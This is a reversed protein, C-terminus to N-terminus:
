LQSTNPPCLQWGDYAICVRGRMWCTEGLSDRKSHKSTGLYRMMEAMSSVPLRRHISRWPLLEGAGSAPDPDPLSPSHGPHRPPSQRLFLSSARCACVSAGSLDESPSSLDRCGRLQLAVVVNLCAQHHNSYSHPKATRPNYCKSETDSM